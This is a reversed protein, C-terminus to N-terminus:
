LEGEKFEDDVKAILDKAQEIAAMNVESEPINNESCYSGYGAALQTAVRLLEDRRQDPYLGTSIKM